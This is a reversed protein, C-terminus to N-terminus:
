AALPLKIVVPPMEAAQAIAARASWTRFADLRGALITTELVSPLATQPRPTTPKQDSMATGAAVGAPTRGISQRSTEFRLGRASTIEASIGAPPKAPKQGIRGTDMTYDKGGRSVTRPADASNRLHQQGLEERMRTVTKGDVVCQRGIERDSWQSWEEDDLLMLVARRKDANTRRLGHAANAGASHLIAVRM